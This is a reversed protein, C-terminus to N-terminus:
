ETIYLSIDLARASHTLVGVSIYDVECEAVEKVRELTMNGSAEVFAKDGIMLVAEKMMEISMNDLMILDAKASIAERVETLSSTEVEIKYKNGLSNRVKDVANAIGGAVKIHNDKIMVMDYLGIRHNTGGGVNVAYKDLLRLGPLTKRTDLIQTKYPKIIEVFKNTATAIGSLRQAFNLATREGTLIARHSGEIEALVDGAKAKDGDEFNPSWKVSSSLKFFVSQMIDMGAIVGEEKTKVFATVQKEEPVINDTTIDGPGIDEKLARNVIEDVYFMNFDYGTIARDNKYSMTNM